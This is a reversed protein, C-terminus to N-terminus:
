QLWILISVTGLTQTINYMYVYRQRLLLLHCKLLPSIQLQLDISGNAKIYITAEVEPAKVVLGLMGILLFVLVLSYVPSRSMVYEGM